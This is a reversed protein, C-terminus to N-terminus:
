VAGQLKRVCNEWVNVGGLEGHLEACSGWVAGGGSDECVAGGGSDECVAGGGSDECVAGGCLERWVAGGVCNGVCSEWVATVEAGGVCSGM